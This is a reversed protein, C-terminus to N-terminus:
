YSMLGCCRSCVPMLGKQRLSRRFDLYRPHNWLESLTADKVNGVVYDHYDRCPSVDGNSNVELAEYVAVCEDFGFRERHDSYYTRLAEAERFNPLLIVPTGKRRAVEELRRLEDALAGANDPKWSGVWGRPTQPVFGFREQFDREHDALREADIWWGLYFVLVDVREHFAEYIDVLHGANHRSITTLSALLPLGRQRDREARIEALAATVAAFNDGAGAAPRIRNHIDACPGDISIQLLFLPARALRAAAAAVRTGNTAISVPLRLAAASEIVDLCGPYLMPEGGWLYVLPHEGLAALDRWLERYRAPSVEAAARARLDQDHMFGGPGWQGCTECRLNCRDTIRVGVQRIRGAQGSAARPHLASFFWKDLQLAALRAAIWPHRIVPRFLHMLASPGVFSRKSRPMFIELVSALPSEVM